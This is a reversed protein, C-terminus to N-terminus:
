LLKFQERVMAMARAHLVHASGYSIGMISAIQKFDLGQYWRLVLVERSRPPLTEILRSVQLLLDEHSEDQDLGPLERGALPEALIYNDRVRERRNLDHARNRVARLLYHFLDQDTKVPLRQRNRWVALFVDQVIDGADDDNAFTAVYKALEYFWERYLQEFIGVDGVELAAVFRADPVSSSRFLHRLM